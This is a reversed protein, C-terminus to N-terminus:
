AFAKSKEVLWSPSVGVSGWRAFSFLASDLARLTAPSADRWAAAGTHLPYINTLLQLLMYIYLYIYKTGHSSIIFSKVVSLKLFLYLYM